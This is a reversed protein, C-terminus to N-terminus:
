CEMLTNSLKTVLQGIIDASLVLGLDQGLFSNFLLRTSIISIPSIPM